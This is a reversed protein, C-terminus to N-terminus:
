FQFYIFEAPPSGVLVRLVVFLSLYGTWRAVMPRATLLRSLDIRRKVLQVVLLLGLVYLPTLPVSQGPARTVIHQVLAVAHGAGTARFFVWTLCILHFVVVARLIKEPLSMKAPQLNDIKLAVIGAIPGLVNIDEQSFPQDDSLRDLYLVGSVSGRVVLPLCLAAKAGSMDVGPRRGVDMDGRSVLVAERSGKVRRLIEHSVFVDPPSSIARSISHDRQAPVRIDEPSGNEFLILFCRDFPTTGEITDLLPEYAEPSTSDLSISLLNQWDPEKRRKSHPATAPLVSSLAQIPDWSQQHPFYVTKSRRSDVPLTLTRTLRLEYDGIRLRDGERLKEEVVQRGNVFVHNLSKEDVIVLSGHVKNITAHRKSVSASPLLLDNKWERGVTFPFRRLPTQFHKGSRAFVELLYSKM